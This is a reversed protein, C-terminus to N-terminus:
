QFTSPAPMASCAPEPPEAINSMVSGIFGTGILPVSALPRLDGYLSKM